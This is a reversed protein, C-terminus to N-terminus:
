RFRPRIPIFSPCKPVFNPKQENVLECLLIGVLAKRDAQLAKLM